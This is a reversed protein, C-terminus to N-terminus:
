RREVAWGVVGFVVGGVLAGVVFWIVTPVLESLALLGLQQALLVVVGGLVAGSAATTEALSM